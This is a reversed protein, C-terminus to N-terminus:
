KAKKQFTMGVWDNILRKEILELGHQEAESQVEDAQRDLIGSLVLYGNDTVLRSLGSNLLRIIIPALINVM